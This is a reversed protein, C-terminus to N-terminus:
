EQNHLRDEKSAERSFLELQRSWGYIGPIRFWSGSFAMLFCGIWIVLIMIIILVNPGVFMVGLLQFLLEVIIIIAALVVGQSGHHRCYVSDRRLLLPLLALIGIYGIATLLREGKDLDSGDPRKGDPYVPEEIPKASFQLGQQAPEVPKSLTTGAVTDFQQQFASGQQPQAPAIPQPPNAFIPQQSQAGGLREDKDGPKIPAGAILDNPTPPTGSNDM